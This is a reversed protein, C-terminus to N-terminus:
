SCFCGRSCCPPRREIPRNYAITAKHRSIDTWISIERTVDILKRRRTLNDGSRDRKTLEGFRAVVDRGPCPTKAHKSQRVCILFQGVLSVLIICCCLQDKVYLTGIVNFM